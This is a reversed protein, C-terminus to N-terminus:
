GGLHPALRRLEDDHARLVRVTDPDLTEDADDSLRAQSVAAATFRDVARAQEHFADLRRRQAAEAAKEVRRADADAHAHAAEARAAELRRQGVGLPDWRFGLGAGAIALLVIAGVSLGLAAWGRATLSRLLLGM